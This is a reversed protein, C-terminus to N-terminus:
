WLRWWGPTFARAFGYRALIFLIAAVALLTLGRVQSRREANHRLLSSLPRPPM